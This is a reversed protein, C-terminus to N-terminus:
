PHRMVGRRLATVETMVSWYTRLAEVYQQGADVLERRALLLEVTSANMANYHLLTEDLIQQRLPLVVDRLRSAEAYAALARQRTARVEARLEIATAARDRRTRRLEANARVRAGQGQGFLPVGFRLVPGVEWEGGDRRAAAIGVGFSPLWAQTRASRVRGSAAFEEHRLVTLDLSDDLAAVELDDLAPARPPLAPLRGAVSWGTNGETLGLVANLAERGVEIELGARALDIRAQERRDRERALALDTANGAAHMREALTASADAADFAVQRLELTQQAAVVDYFARQARAALDVTAAVARAQAAALEASAVDRRQGRQVLDLLDQVVGLEVEAGGGATALKYSVDVETPPLLAADAVVGSAIGLAEFQAQLRESNAVAIRVVEDLGLPRALLAATAADVRSGDVADHWVASIGLRRVVERDVPSFVERRSPVCSATLAAMVALSTWRSARTLRGM